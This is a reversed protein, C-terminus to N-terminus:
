RRPCRAGAPSSRTTGSSDDAALERLAVASSEAVTGPTTSAQNVSSSRQPVIVNACTSCGAISMASCPKGSPSRVRRTSRRSSWASSTDSSRSADVQGAARRRLRAVDEPIRISARVSRLSTSASFLARPSPGGRLAAPPARDSRCPRCRALRHRLKGLLVAPQEAVLVERAVGGLDLRRDRDVVAAVVDVLIRRRALARGLQERQVDEFAVVQLLHPVVAGVYMWVLASATFSANRSRSFNRPSMSKM